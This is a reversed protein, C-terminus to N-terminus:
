ASLLGSSKIALALQDYLKLGEHLVWRLTAPEDYNPRPYPPDPVIAPAYRLALDHALGHFTPGIHGARTCLVLIFEVSGDIAINLGLEGPVDTERFWFFREGSHFHFRRGTSNVAAVITEHPLSYHPECDSVAEVLAYYSEAFEIAHALELLRETAAEEDDETPM